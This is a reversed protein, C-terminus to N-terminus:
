FNHLWTSLNLMKTFVPYHFITSRCTERFIIFIPTRAILYLIKWPIGNEAILPWFRHMEFIFLQIYLIWSLIELKLSQIWKARKYIWLCGWASSPARSFFSCLVNVPAPQRSYWLNVKENLTIHYSMISYYLVFLSLKVKDCKSSPPM